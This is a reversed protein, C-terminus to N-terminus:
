PHSADDRGPSTSTACTGAGHSAAIVVRGFSRTSAPPAPSGIGAPARLSVSNRRADDIRAAPNSRSAIRAATLASFSERHEGGTSGASTLASTSDTHLYAGPREGSYSRSRIAASARRASASPRRSMSRVRM